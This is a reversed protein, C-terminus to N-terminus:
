DRSVLDYQVIFDMINADDAGSYKLDKNQLRKGMYMASRSGNCDRHGRYENSNTPASTHHYHAQSHPSAFQSAVTPHHTGHQPLVYVPISPPVIPPVPNSQLMIHLSLQTAPGSLNMPPVPPVFVVLLVSLVGAM